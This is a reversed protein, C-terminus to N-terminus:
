GLKGLQMKKEIARRGLPCVCVPTLRAVGISHPPPPPQLLPPEEQVSRHAGYIMSDLLGTVTIAGGVIACIETLFHYFPTKTETYHVMIPSVDYFFFVGAARWRRRPM